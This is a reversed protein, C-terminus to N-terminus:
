FHMNIYIIQRLPLLLVCSCLSLSYPYQVKVDKWRNWGLPIFDYQSHMLIPSTILSFCSVTHAKSLLFPIELYQLHLVDTTWQRPITEFFYVKPGLASYFKLICCTRRETWLDVERTKWNCLVFQGSICNSKFSFGGYLM